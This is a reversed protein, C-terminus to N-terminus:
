VELDLGGLIADIDVEKRKPDVPVPVNLDVAALFEDTQVDTPNSAVGLLEDLSGAGAVPTEELGPSTGVPTEPQTSEVPPLVESLDPETRGGAFLAQLERLTTRDVSPSKDLDPGTSPYKSGWRGGLQIEEQCLHIQDRLRSQLDKLDTRKAKIVVILADLDELTHRLGAVEAVQDRLKVSAISDQTVYNRGARTEPDNAFLHKKDLELMTEATRHAAKYKQIYGSIQLFLTETDSLFRRVEAVKQNLRKPGHELPNEDLELSMASLVLFTQDIAVQDIPPLKVPEAM